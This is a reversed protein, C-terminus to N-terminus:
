TGQQSKRLSILKKLTKEVDILEKNGEISSDIKKVPMQLKKSIRTVENKLRDRYASLLEITENLENLTPEPM